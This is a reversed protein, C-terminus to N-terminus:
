NFSSHNPSEGTEASKYKSISRIMIKSNEKTVSNNELIIDSYQMQILTKQRDSIDQDNRFELYYKVIDKANSFYLNKKNNGVKPYGGVTM